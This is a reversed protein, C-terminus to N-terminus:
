KEVDIGNLSIAVTDNSQLKDINLHYFNQGWYKDTDFWPTKKFFLFHIYPLEKGDPRFVKGDKIRYRWIEAEKPAPSTFYERFLRRGGNIRNAFDMFSFFDTVRLKKVIRNWVSRNVKIGPFALASWEGEDFGYHKDGCLRNQWDPIRFCLERYHKNNRLVTFHGAIHYNHTTILDYKSLNHDN